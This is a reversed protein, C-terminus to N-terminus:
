LEHVNEPLDENMNDINELTGFIIQDFNRSLSKSHFGHMVVSVTVEVEQGIQLKCAPLATWIEQEDLMLRAYTYGGAALTELVLGRFTGKPLAKKEGTAPVNQEQSSSVDQGERDSNTACNLNIVLLFLLVSILTRNRNM